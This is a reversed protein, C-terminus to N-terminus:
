EQVTQRVWREEGPLGIDVFHLEIDENTHNQVIKHKLFLELGVGLLMSRQIHLSYPYTNGTPTM